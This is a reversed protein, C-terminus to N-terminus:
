RVATKTQERLGSSENHGGQISYRHADSDSDGQCDSFKGRAVSGGSFREDLGRWM